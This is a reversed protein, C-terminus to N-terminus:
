MLHVQIKLWKIKLAKKCWYTRKIGNKDTIPIPVLGMALREQKWKSAHLDAAAQDTVAGTDSWKLGDPGEKHDAFADSTVDRDAGEQKM